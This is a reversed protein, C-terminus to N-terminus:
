GPRSARRWTREGRQLEIEHLNALTGAANDTSVETLPQVTVSEERYVVLGVSFGLTMAVVEIMGALSRTLAAIHRSMTLSGDLVIVLEVAQTALGERKQKIFEIVYLVVFLGMLNFVLDTFLPWISLTQPAKM